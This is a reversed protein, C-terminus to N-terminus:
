LALDGADDGTLVLASAEVAGVLVPVAVPLFLAPLMVERARTNVAMASFATGLTAIGVTALVATPLLMPEALSLNFLM